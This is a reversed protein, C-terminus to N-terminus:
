ATKYGWCIHCSLTLFQITKSIDRLEPYLNKVENSHCPLNFVEKAIAGHIDQGELFIEKLREDGSCICAMRMECASLDAGLLVWGERAKIIRKVNKAEANRVPLNQFNRTNTCSRLPQVSSVESQQM